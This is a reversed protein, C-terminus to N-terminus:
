SLIFFNKSEIIRKCEDLCALQTAEDPDLKELVDTMLTTFISLVEYKNVDNNTDQEQKLELKDQDIIIILNQHLNFEHKIIKSFSSLKMERKMSKRESLSTLKLESIRNRNMANERQTIRREVKEDSSEIQDGIDVIKASEPTKEVVSDKNMSFLMDKRQSFSSRLMLLPDVKPRLIEVTPKQEMRPPMSQEDENESSLDIEKRNKYNIAASEFGTGNSKLKNLSKIGIGQL